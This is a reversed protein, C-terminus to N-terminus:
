LFVLMATLVLWQSVTRSIGDSIWGQRVSWGIAEHLSAVMPHWAVVDILLWLLLAGCLPLLALALMRPRLQAILAQ